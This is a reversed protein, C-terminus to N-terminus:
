IIKCANESKERKKKEERRKGGKIIQEVNKHVPM